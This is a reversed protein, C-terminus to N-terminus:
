AAKSSSSASRSLGESSRLRPSAGNSAGVQVRSPLAWTSGGAARCPRASASRAALRPRVRTNGSLCEDAFGLPSIHFVCENTHSCRANRRWFLAFIAPLTQVGFVACLAASFSVGAGKAAGRASASKGDAGGPGGGTGGQRQGPQASEGGEDKTDPFSVSAPMQKAAAAAPAVRRTGSTFFRSLLSTESGRQPSRESQRPLAPPSAVKPGQGYGYASSPYPDQRIMSQRPGGPIQRAASQHYNPEQRVSSMRYAGPNLLAAPPLFVTEGDTLSVGSARLHGSPAATAPYGGGAAGYAGYAANSSPRPRRPDGAAVAAAAASAGNGAASIQLDAARFSTESSRQSNGYTSGPRIVRSGVLPMGGNVSGQRGAVTAESREQPVDQLSPKRVRATAPLPPPEPPQLGTPFRGYGDLIQIRSMRSRPVRAPGSARPPLDLGGENSDLTTRRMQVRAQDPALGGFNRAQPQPSFGFLQGAVPQDRLNGGWSARVRKDLANPVLSSRM